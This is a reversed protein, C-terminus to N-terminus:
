TNVSSFVRNAEEYDYNCADMVFLQFAATNRSNVMVKDGNLRTIIEESGFVYIDMTYRVFVNVMHAFMQFSKKGNLNLVYVEYSKQIIEHPMEKVFSM